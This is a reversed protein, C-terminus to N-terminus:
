FEVSRNQESSLLAAYQLNFVERYQEFSILQNLSGNRLHACFDDVCAAWGSKAGDPIPLIQAPPEPQAPSSRGTFEAQNGDTWLRGKDGEIICEGFYGTTKYDAAGWNVAMDITIGTKTRLLM